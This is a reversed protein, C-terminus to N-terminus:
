AAGKTVLQPQTLKELQSGWKMLADRKESLYSYRDYIGTVTKDAHNLVRAIVFRDVGLSGLGTACTRRLDHTTWRKLKMEGATKRAADVNADLMAKAKSYGSIPRNGTTTFVYVPALDKLPQSTEAGAKAAALAPTKASTLIELALSSLPVVHERKAKTAEKPITWTMEEEDIDAWRMSAVEDRRQGTALTMCFFAGFPYGLARMVPWLVRIEEDSLTRERRTEEGPREVLAVPTSEIIGRRLAWNFLARVAALTRNAAIPGGSIHRKEGDAGIVDTGKDVIADLLENVDRRTIEKIDKDCWRPLVHNNFNRRTEEIYRPSRMGGKAKPRKTMALIFEDIVSAIADTKRRAEAEMAVRRTRAPDTGRKASRVIEEAERRANALSFTPYEGITLRRLKPDGKVRYLVSWVRTGEPRNDTAGEVRLVLGRVRDRSHDDFFDVREGVSVSVRKVAADTMKLKPM